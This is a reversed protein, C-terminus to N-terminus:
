GKVRKSKLLQDQEYPNLQAWVDSKKYNRMLVPNAREGLEVEEEEKVKELTRRRLYYRLGDIIRGILNTM